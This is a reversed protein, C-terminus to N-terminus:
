YSEQMTHESDHTHGSSYKAVIQDYLNHPPSSFLTAPNNESPKLLTDYDDMTLIPSSDKTERVWADFDEQTSVRAIFKMGAFGRGNIEGSRGPYDGTSDAILNLPNVHGTMAYLMGGLNPIWFSSMPAQDATLEFRVPTDVPIQVFNVTAIDQNPYIFLWKWDLAVVQVTLQENSSEIPKQPVLQQTAPLMLAILIAIIVLPGGWAFILYSKNYSPNPEYTTKQNDERYRWMFFYICLAVPVVFAFMILTSVILLRHQEDAILGKPNMLAINADKMFFALITGLLLIGVIVILLKPIGKPSQSSSKKAM